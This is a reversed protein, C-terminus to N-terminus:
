RWDLAEAAHTWSEAEAAEASPPGQFPREEGPALDGIPIWGRGFLGGRATRFYNIWVM